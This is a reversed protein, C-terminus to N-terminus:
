RPEAVRQDVAVAPFLPNRVYSVVLNVFSLQLMQRVAVYVKDHVSDLEVVEHVKGHVLGVSAPGTSAFPRILHGSCLTYAPNLTSCQVDFAWRQLESALIENAFRDIFREAM